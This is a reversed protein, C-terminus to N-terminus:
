NLFTNYKVEKLLINENGLKLFNMIVLKIFYRFYGIPKFVIFYSFM